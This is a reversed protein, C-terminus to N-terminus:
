AIYETYPIKDRHFLFYCLLSISVPISVILLDFQCQRKRCSAVCMQRRKCEDNDHRIPINDERVCISMNIDFPLAVRSYRAATTYTARQVFLLYGRIKRDAYQVGCVYEGHVCVRVVGGSDCLWLASLRKDPVNWPMQVPRCEVGHAIGGLSPVIWASGDVYRHWGFGKCVCCIITCVTACLCGILGCLPITQNHANSIRM